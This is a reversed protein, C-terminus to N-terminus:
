QIALKTRYRQGNDLKAEILYIGPSYDTLCIETTESMPIYNRSLAGHIGTITIAAIQTGKPATIQIHENAPNPFLSIEAKPRQLEPLGISVEFEIIWFDRVGKLSSTKDGTYGSLSTGAILYKSPFVEIIDDSVDISNGGFTKDWLFNGTTDICVIWYDNWGRNTETKDGSIGSESNGTIIMNGNTAVIAASAGDSANGGYTKDWVINGTQNLKTIWIDSGGKSNESKTGSIDSDSSGVIYIYDGTVLPFGRDDMSGGLTTEWILDGNLDACVVWIDWNGYGNSTKEFSATSNSMGTMIVLTDNLLTMGLMSEFGNGGFARDWLLNGQQDIRVLWIDKFGRLFQTRLGSSDSMSSGGLLLTGDSLEIVAVGEDFESGGIDLDWLFTGNNSIKVLWYDGNGYGNSSKEGSSDSVSGGFLLICSDSTLIMDQLFDMKNGGITRQWVINLQSDTKFIWFDSAGRSSETKDFSIDSNSTGAFYYYSGVKIVKPSMETNSGGFSVQQAITIQANASSLMFTFLSLIIFTRM